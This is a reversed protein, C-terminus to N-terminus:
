ETWYKSREKCGKRKLGSRSLSSEKKAEWIVRFYNMQIASTDNQSIKPVDDSPNITVTLYSDCKPATKSYRTYITCM